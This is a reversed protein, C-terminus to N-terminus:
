SPVRSSTFCHACIYEAVLPRVTVKTFIAGTYKLKPPTSPRIFYQSEIFIKPGTKRSFRLNINPPRTLPGLKQLLFIRIWHCWLVRTHHAFEPTGFLFMGVTRALGMHPACVYLGSPAGVDKLTELIVTKVIVAGRSRPLLFM